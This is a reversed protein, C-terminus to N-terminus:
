VKIDETCKEVFLSISFNPIRACFKGVASNRLTTNCHAEASAKTRGSKTPWTPEPDTIEDPEFFHIVNDAKPLVVYRGHYYKYSYPSVLEVWNSDIGYGPTYAPSVRDCAKKLEWLAASTCLCYRQTTKNQNEVTENYYFLSKGNPIRCFYISSRMAYIGNIAKNQVFVKAM